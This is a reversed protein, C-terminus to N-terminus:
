RRNSIKKTTQISTIEIEFSRNWTIQRMTKSSLDAV